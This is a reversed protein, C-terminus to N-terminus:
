SRTGRKPPPAPESQGIDAIAAAFDRDLEEGVEARAAAPDGGHRRLEAEYLLQHREHFAAAQMLRTLEERAAKKAEAKTPDRLLAAATRADTAPGHEGGRM